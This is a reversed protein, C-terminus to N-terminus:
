TLDWVDSSTVNEDETVNDDDNNYNDTVFQDIFDPEETESEIVVDSNYCFEEVYIAMNNLPCYLQPIHVFFKMVELMVDNNILIKFQNELGRIYGSILHENDYKIINYDSNIEKKLDDGNQLQDIAIYKKFLTDIKEREDFIIDTFNPSCFTEVILKEFSGKNISKYIPVEEWEKSVINTLYNELFEVVDNELSFKLKLLNDDHIRPLFVLLIYDITNCIVEYGLVDNDDYPNFESPLFYKYENQFKLFYYVATKGHGDVLNIDVTGNLVPAIINNYFDKPKYGSWINLEKAYNLVDSSDKFNFIKRTSM